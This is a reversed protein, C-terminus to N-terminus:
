CVNNVTVTRKPLTYIKARYNISLLPPNKEDHPIAFVATGARYVESNYKELESIILNYFEGVALAGYKDHIYKPHGPYCYLDFSTNNLDSFSILHGLGTIHEFDM